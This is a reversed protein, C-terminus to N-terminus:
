PGSTWGAALSGLTAAGISTVEGDGTDSAAGSEVPLTGKGEAGGSGPWDAVVTLGEGGIVQSVQPTRPDGDQDLLTFQEPTGVVAGQGIGIGIGCANSAALNVGGNFSSTGEVEAQRAGVVSGDAVHFTSDM